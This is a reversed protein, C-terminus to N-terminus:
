TRVLELESALHVREQASISWLGNCVV